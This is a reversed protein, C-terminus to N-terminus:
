VYRKTKTLIEVLMKGFLEAADPGSATLINNDFEVPNETVIAGTSKIFEKDTSFCTVKRGKLLEANALIGVAGCIAAVIKGRSYFNKIARIVLNNKWYDKSGPGGILVIASFNEPHLNFLYTDPKIRLGFQGFSLNKNESSIFVKIGHKELISKPVTFELDHFNKEPLFFVVSKYTYKSM